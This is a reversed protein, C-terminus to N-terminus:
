TAINHPPHNKLIHTNLSEGGYGHGADKPSLILPLTVFTAYVFPNCQLPIHIPFATKWAVAWICSFSDYIEMVKM